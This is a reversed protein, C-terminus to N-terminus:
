LRDSVHDERLRLIPACVLLQVKAFVLTAGGLALLSRLFMNLETCVFTTNLSHFIQSILLFSVRPQLPKLLSSAGTIVASLQSRLEAVAGGESEHLSGMRSPSIQLPACVRLFLRLILM